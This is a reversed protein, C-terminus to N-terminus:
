RKIGALATMTELRHTRGGPPMLNANDNTQEVFFLGPEDQTGRGSVAWHRCFFQRHQQLRWSLQGKKESDISALLWGHFSDFCACGLVHGNLWAEYQKTWLSSPVPAEGSIWGLLGYPVRQHQHNDLQSPIRCGEWQMRWRVFALAVPCFASTREGELDWWLAKMALSVCHRHGTIVHRGLFRRISRYTLWARALSIDNFQTLKQNKTPANSEQAQLYDAFYAVPALMHLEQQGWPRDLTVRALVDSVFQKFAATRRYVDPKSLVLPLYPRGLLTRCANILTPLRDTFRVMEIHDQLLDSSRDDIALTSRPERIGKAHDLGCHWFSFLMWSRTAHLEYPVTAGCRSCGRRLEIKHLPCTTFFNLQFAPSHYGRQACLPCWVLFSSSLEAANPFLHNVFALQLQAADLKLLNSLRGLRLSHPARLDVRPFHPRGRAAKVGEYSNREVFLECLERNSLANLAGFKALLSYVSESGSYWTPRWCWTKESTGGYDVVIKAPESRRM